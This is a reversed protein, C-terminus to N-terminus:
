EGGACVDVDHSPWDDSPRRKHKYIGFTLLGIIAWWFKKVIKVM